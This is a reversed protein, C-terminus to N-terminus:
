YFFIKSLVDVIKEKSHKYFSNKDLLDSELVVIKRRELEKKEGSSLFLYDGGKVSIDNKFEEIQKENLDLKKNNIVFFDIRRGLFREIKNVFDLQTLGTTEGGKNTSNGIYILKAKSERISDSVGGIIFNSIISTFLDGPGIIIFDSEVISNHVDSNHTADLSCEMLELDAIGSNYNAVNSIRDQSEIIEGNGLIARIYAKKTTVPIVKSNVELLFHMFSIMEDYDKELNYYLNAMLINGFKHGKISSKLPLKFSFYSNFKNKLFSYLDGRKFEFEELESKFISAKGFFLLEKNAQRFLDFIDFKSINEENLFTYEFILKFYERYTSNSLSFLCRRLDGPPPLHLGLEEEFARMLEGTTRGDDSMSVISTIEIKDGLITFLGDLLNSQGNGGGITTVKKM